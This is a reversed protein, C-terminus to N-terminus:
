EEIQPAIMYKVRLGGGVYEAMLPQDIGLSLAIHTAPTTKLLTNMFSMSFKSQSAEKFEFKTLTNKPFKAEIGDDGGISSGRMYFGDKNVHLHIADTVNNTAKLVRSIEETMGEILNPLKLNPIKPDKMAKTDLPRISKMVNGCKIRFVTKKADYDMGLIDEAKAIKLFDAIKLMSLGIEADGKLTYTEFEAKHIEVVAMAVHGEDVLRASFGGEESIFLKFEDTLSGVVNCFNKLKDTKIEMDMM